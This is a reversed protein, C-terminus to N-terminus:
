RRALRLLDFENSTGLRVRTLFTGADPSVFV